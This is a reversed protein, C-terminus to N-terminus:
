YPFGITSIGKFGGGLSGHWGFAVKVNAFLNRWLGLSSWSSLSPFPFECGWSINGLHTNVSLKSSNPLIYFYTCIYQLIHINISTYYIYIHIYIHQIKTYICTCMQYGFIVLTLLGRLLVQLEFFLGEGVSSDFPRLIRLRGTPTVHFWWGLFTVKECFQYFTNSKCTHFFYQM